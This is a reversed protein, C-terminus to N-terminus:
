KRKAKAKLEDAVQCVMGDIGFGIGNVFRTETGNIIVRPLKKVYENVLILNDVVKDAVDRLFDNGNGGKYLYFPCPLTKNYVENAFHNLTGDGGVLVVIDDKSLKALFEKADLNIVNVTQFDQYKGKLQEIVSDKLAEGQSNNALPNYLLYNM